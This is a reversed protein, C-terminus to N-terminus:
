STHVALSVNKFPLFQKPPICHHTVANYKMLFCMNFSDQSVKGFTYLIKKKHQGYKWFSTM